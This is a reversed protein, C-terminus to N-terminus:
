KERERGWHPVAQLYAQTFGRASNSAFVKRFRMILTACNGVVQWHDLDMNWFALLYLEHEKGRGSPKKKTKNEEWFALSTVYSIYM